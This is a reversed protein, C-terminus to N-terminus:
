SLYTPVIKVFGGPLTIYYSANIRVIRFSIIIFPVFQNM